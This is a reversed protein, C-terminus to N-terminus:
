KKVREHWHRCNFYRGCSDIEKQPYGNEVLWRMVDTVDDPLAKPFGYQWGSPPDIMHLVEEEVIWDNIGYPDSYEYLQKM